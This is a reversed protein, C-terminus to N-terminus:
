LLLAERAERYSGYCKKSHWFEQFDEIVKLDKGLPGTNSADVLATVLDCVWSTPPVVAFERQWSTLQM